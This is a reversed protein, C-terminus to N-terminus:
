RSEPVAYPLRPDQPWAEFRVHGQGDGIAIFWVEHQFDIKILGYRGVVTFSLYFFDGPKLSTTLKWPLKCYVTAGPGGAKLVQAVQAGYGVGRTADHLDEAAAGTLIPSCIAQVNTADFYGTNRLLFPTAFLDSPDMSAQPELSIQVQYIAKITPLQAITVLTGVGTLIGIIVKLWLPMANWRSKTDSKEDKISAAPQAFQFKELLSSEIRKYLRQQKRRERAPGNM